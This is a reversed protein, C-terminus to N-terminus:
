AALDSKGSRLLLISDTSLVTEVIGVLEPSVSVKKNQPIFGLLKSRRFEEAVILWRNEGNGEEPKNLLLEQEFCYNRVSLAVSGGSGFDGSVYWGWDEDLYDLSLGHRELSTVLYKALDSGYFMNGANFEKPIPGKYDFLETQILFEHSYGRDVV